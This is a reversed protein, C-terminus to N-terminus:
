IIYLIFFYTLDKRIHDIVLNYYLHDLFSDKFNIVDLEVTIVDVSDLKLM